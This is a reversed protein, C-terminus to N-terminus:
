ASIIVNWTNTENTQSISRYLHSYIHYNFARNCGNQTLKLQRRWDTNTHYSLILKTQAIRHFRAIKAEYNRKHRCIWTVDRCLKWNFVFEISMKVKFCSCRMTFISLDRSNTNACPFTALYVKWFGCVCLFCCCFICVNLETETLIKCVAWFFRLNTIKFSNFKM